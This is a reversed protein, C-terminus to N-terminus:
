LLESCTRYPLTLICLPSQFGGVGYFQSIKNQSILIFSVQKVTRIATTLKVNYISCLSNLLVKYLLQYPLM